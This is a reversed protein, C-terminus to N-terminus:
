SSELYHSTKPISKFSSYLYTQSVHNVFDRLGDYAKAYESPQKILNRGLGDKKKQTSSLQHHDPPLHANRDAFEDLAVTKGKSLSSHLISHNSSIALESRLAYEAKTYGRRSLYDLIAQDNIIPHPQTESISPRNSLNIQTEKLPM